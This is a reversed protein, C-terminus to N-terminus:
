GPSALGFLIFFGRFVRVVRSVPDSEVKGLMGCQWASFNQKKAFM